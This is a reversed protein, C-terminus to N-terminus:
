TTGFEAPAFDLGDIEVDDLVFQALLNAIGTTEIGGAESIEDFLRSGKSCLKKTKACVDCSKQYGTNTCGFHPLM